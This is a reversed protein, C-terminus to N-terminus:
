RVERWMVRQPGSNGSAEGTTQITGDSKNQEKFEIKPDLGGLYTPDTGIGGDVKTGSLNSGNVQDRQDVIANGDTNFTPTDRRNGTLADLEMLWGTGGYSCPSIVEPIITNFIVRGGRFNPSGVSREGSTPLNMYWGKKTSDYLARTITNDGSLTTDTPPNVAHTTRRYDHGSATVVDVVSQQVLDSLPVTCNCAKDRVGYQRQSSVDTNDATALYRGSGFSVMFGANNSYRTVDPRGTISQGSTIFLPVGGNGIAWSAPAAATLDFRWLRGDLDGAFVVDAVSDNNTDIATAASLGNPSAATGTGTDIKKVLTGTEADIIFLFAHGNANGTNYGGNVIVSWRGNNTKVILPQGFVYGMDPDQFEWRVINAANAESFTSPDTVDLAYLGKAGSRFGAVLLSHWGGAYFVDGVTPPGDVFYRHSYAGDTLQSLNSFVAAPVYAFLENGTAADIAHLMGDNAGVYIVPTRTRYAAKFSSYPVSEFDDYYGFNPTAVYYPSSNVIDGLPTINRNRFQPAACPGSVCNRPEKTADGRLYKLRWEGFGDNSATANLNLATTQTVDIENVTPTAPMAPWRFPVGRAGVAASPKYTLIKRQTDWNQAKIQVGSDWTSAASITGDSKIAYAVLNGSWDAKEFKAQYLLSGANWSGSNLALSAAAGTKSRIDSVISQFANTLAAVNSGLFATAYGGGLDAMRNLAAVSSPNALGEGMGVIYTQVDYNNSSVTISRLATIEAFVDKQAQGWSWTSSFPNFTNVWETPNYQSGDLKGTPNGDTALMVFNRQCTQTIPTINTSNDFYQRVTKLSGTLPTYFASNKIEGTNANTENALAALLTNFHANSDPKVREVINGKGTIDNGYGWGRKIWIQRPMTAAQPLWGADTFVFPISGGGFPGAVPFDALAWGTGAARPAGRVFYRVGTDGVGYMVTSNSFSYLVDNIDADDGSQKYTIHTFTNVAADPNPICRLGGNSASIGAVCDNTYVMSAADGVYYAHTNYLTNGRTEFTTLGWNFSDRYTQLVSRMVGRAINGRTTPDDGSIVKGAMTADMSESNDFILMVNPKVSPALFLPYNALTIPALAWAGLPAALLAFVCTRLPSNLRHLTTTM